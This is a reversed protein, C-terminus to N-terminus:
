LAFSSGKFAVPRWTISWSPITQPRDASSRRGANGFHALDYKRVGLDNYHATSAPEPPETAPPQVVQEFVFETRRANHKAPEARWSGAPYRRQGFNQNNRRPNLNKLPPLQPPSGSLSPRNRHDPSEDEAPDDSLREIEAQLAAIQQNLSKARQSIPDKKKFLGM